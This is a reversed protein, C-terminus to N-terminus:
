IRGTAALVSLGFVLSSGAVTVAFGILTRRIGRLDDKLESMDDRLGILEAAMTEPKTNEIQRLRRWVGKFREFTVPDEGPRPLELEYESM